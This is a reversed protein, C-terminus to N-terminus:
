MVERQRALLVIANVVDGNTESLANIAEGFSAGAVQEQVIYVHVLEIIGMATDTPM